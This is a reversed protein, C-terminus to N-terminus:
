RTAVAASGADYVQDNECDTGAAPTYSVGASDQNPSGPVCAQDSLASLSGNAPPTVVSFTLECNDADSARLTVPVAVGVGTSVSGGSAVPAQNGPTVTVAVTATNSDAAGDNAKFTFSDPGSYGAAPSYLM